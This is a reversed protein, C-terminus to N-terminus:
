LENTICKTEKVNEGRAKATSPRVLPLSKKVMPQIIGDDFSIKNSNNSLFNFNPKM